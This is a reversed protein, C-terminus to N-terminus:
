GFSQVDASIDDSVINSVFYLIVRKIINIVPKELDPANVGEWQNGVFFHENQEVRDYLGLNQNYSVARDFEARVQEPTLARM